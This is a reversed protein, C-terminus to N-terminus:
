REGKEILELIRKLTAQDKSFAVIYGQKIIEVQAPSFDDRMCSLSDIHPQFLDWHKAVTAPADFLRRADEGMGEGIEGDGFSSLALVSRICTRNGQRAMTCAATHIEWFSIPWPVGKLSVEYTEAGEDVVLKSPISVYAIYQKENKPLALVFNSRYRIPDRRYLLYSAFLRSEFSSDQQSVKSLTEINGKAYLSLCKRAAADVRNAEASLVSVAIVASGFIATTLRHM